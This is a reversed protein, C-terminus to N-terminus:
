MQTLKNDLKKLLKKQDRTLTKPVTVVLRVYQDGRSHGRLNPMGKGQLRILSGPQTGARVKLKVKGELTTVEETNGLATKTFPIQHDIFIDAGDRKFTQHPLVDVSVDFDTYRIRTGDDAGAPVKINHQKGQHVITKEIGKFAEELTIKLSYHTKAPGRRGFPSVGGFFSEFIEFPDTFGGFDFGPAGSAGRGSSTYTYTFPGARGTRGAGAGFGGFGSGPKFAAHGFQDYAQKKQPNSLIEYAENIEKFKAEAEKSKNRDPHFELAKKRYAKKLETASAQKSVSLIEYYDRNTVM